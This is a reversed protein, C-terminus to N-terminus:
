DKKDLYDVAGTDLLSDKVRKFEFFYVYGDYLQLLPILNDGKEIAALADDKLLYGVEEIEIVMNKGKKVFKKLNFTKM